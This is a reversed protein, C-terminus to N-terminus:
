SNEAWTKLPTLKPAYEGPKFQTCEFHCEATNLRLYYKDLTKVVQVVIGRHHDQTEKAHILIDDM